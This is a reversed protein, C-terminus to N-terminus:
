PSMSFLRLVKRLTRNLGRKNLMDAPHYLKKEMVVALATVGVMSQGNMKDAARLAAARVTTPRPEVPPNRLGLAAPNPPARQHKVMKSAVTVDIGLRPATQPAANQERPARTTMSVLPPGLKTGIELM